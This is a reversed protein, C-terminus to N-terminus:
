VAFTYYYITYDYDYCYDLGEDCELVRTCLSSPIRTCHNIDARDGSAPCNCVRCDERVEFSQNPTCSGPPPTYGCDSASEWAWKTCPRGDRPFSPGPRQCVCERCSSGSRTDAQGPTCADARTTLERAPADDANAAPLFDDALAAAHLLVFIASFKSPSMM